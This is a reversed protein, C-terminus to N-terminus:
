VARVWKPREPREPRILSFFDPNSFVPETSAVDAFVTSFHMTITSASYLHCVTCDNDLTLKSKEQVPDAAKSLHKHEHHGIHQAKMGTEHQCYTAVAAWSVQLPLILLMFIILFRRM